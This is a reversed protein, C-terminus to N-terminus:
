FLQKKRLFLLIGIAATLLATGLLILSWPDSSILASTNGSVIFGSWYYPHALGNERNTQLFDFQAKRLAEDKADGDALNKYFSDMIGATSADNIKWLTSTISTAGSYFFGQALSLFGEGRKLEGVGTECASLTVLNSNLQLNYLDKVYLLNDENTTNSFALYSYEPLSDNFVAHTALHLTSFNTLQSAFNQLTANEDIYSIGKFSTLIQEVERRNHPLPLLKDRNPNVETLEGSFKPAFALLEGDQQQRNALQEHLTASNVYSINYDEMLYSLGVETTNLAGFPIYNLLGDPVIILNNKEKSPLLPAVLIQFLRNSIRGLDTIDSNSNVMLEHTRKISSEISADLPIREIQKTSKDVGIVFIADNGYFYSILKEDATLRKQMESLSSTETNYKLNYYSKYNTEISDILRRHSEQLEFLKDQLKGNDEKSDIIKKENFTIESKLQLELQLLEEPVNAFQTAKASLLAELLIISKSKEAYTFALDIYNESGSSKALEYATNLGNEFLTFAEAILDLKDTKNKFSPKLLDLTKLGYDVSNLVADSSISDSLTSLAEVKGCLLSFLINKQKVLTPDPNRTINGQEIEPALEALGMQYSRLAKEPNNLTLHLDGIRKHINPRNNKLTTRLAGNFLSLAKDYSRQKIHIEGRSSLFRDEFPDEKVKYKEIKALYYYASDIQDLDKLVKAVLLGTTVLSNRNRVSFNKELYNLSNIWLTKAKTFNGQAYLSNAYLNYIKHLGELDDPLSQKQLRINKTYYENAVRYRGQQVNMQAIFNYCQSVLEVDEESNLYNKDSVLQKAIGDFYFEAKEYDQLKHYYNGKNFNLYNKQFNGRDPLTDLSHVHQEILLETQAITSKIKALDYFYGASFCVYNLNDIATPANQHDLALQVIRDFYYYTSDKNSYFYEFAKDELQALQEEYTQGQCIEFVSLAAIFCFCIRTIKFM